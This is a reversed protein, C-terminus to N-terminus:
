KQHDFIEQLLAYLEPHKQALLEPREFFYESVVAFFETENSAGYPNIDSRNKRIDEISRHMLKVWPMIETKDLLNEPIGDTAGDSKDLLHVFEHVATNNKDTTNLFGQRLEHKSLILVGTMPGDGVMGAVDRGQGTTRFDAQSFLDDYILVERLNHYKWGPFGFIPIIAGAAVLVRDTDTVDTNVGSIRVYSLFEELKQEFQKKQEENLRSYFRVGSGLINKYDPPLPPNDVPAPKRKFLLWYVSAIISIVILVIFM